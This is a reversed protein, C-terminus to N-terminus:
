SPVPLRGVGAEEQCLAWLVWVSRDAPVDPGDRDVGTHRHAFPDDENIYRSYTWPRNSIDCRRHGHKFKVINLENLKYEAQIRLSNYKM